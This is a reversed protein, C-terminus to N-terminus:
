ARSQSSPTSLPAAGPLTIGSGSNALTETNIVLATQPATTPQTQLDEILLSGQRAHNPLTKTRGNSPLTPDDETLIRRQRETTPLTPDDVPDDVILQNDSAQSRAIARPNIM